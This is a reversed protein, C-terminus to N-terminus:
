LKLKSNHINKGFAVGRKEAWVDVDIWKRNHFVRGYFHIGIGRKFGQTLILKLNKSFLRGFRFLLCQFFLITSIHCPIAEKRKWVNTYFINRWPKFMWTHEGKSFHNSVFDFSRKMYELPKANKWNVKDLDKRLSKITSRFYYYNISLVIIVLIGLGFLIILLTKDM